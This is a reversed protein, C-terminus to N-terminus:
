AESEEDHQWPRIRQLKVGAPHVLIQRRCLHCLLMIASWPPRRKKDTGSKWQSVAQPRTNLLAAVDKNTLGTKSQYIEVLEKFVDHMPLFKSDTNLFAVLETDRKDIVGM